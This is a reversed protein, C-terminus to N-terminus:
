WWTLKRRTRGCGRAGPAALPGLYAYRGLMVAEEVRLPFLIEERQTVVGVMRAMEARSWKPESM